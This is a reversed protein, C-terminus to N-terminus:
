RRVVGVGVYTLVAEHLAILDSACRPSSCWACSTPRSTSLWSHGHDVGFATAAQLVNSNACSTTGAARVLRCLAWGTLGLIM